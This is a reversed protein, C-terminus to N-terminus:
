PAGFWKEFWHQRLREIPVNPQPKTPWEAKAEDLIKFIDGSTLGELSVKDNDEEMRPKEWIDVSDIIRQKLQGESM